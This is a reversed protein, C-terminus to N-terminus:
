PGCPPEGACVRHDCLGSACDTSEVCQELDGQLPRCTGSPAGILADDCFLGRNCALPGITLFPDSVCRDGIRGAQRCRGEDCVLEAGCFNDFGARPGCLEGPGPAPRCRGREFSALDCYRRDFCTFETDCEADAGRQARCVGPGLPTDGFCVLEGACERDARCSDGAARVPFCRGLATQNGLGDLCFMDPDCDDHDDCRQDIAGTGCRDGLTADQVCHDGVRCPRSVASCPEGPGPPPACRALECRPDSTEARCRSGPTACDTDFRCPALDAVTGVAGTCAALRDAVPLEFIACGQAAAAALCRAAAGGDWTATGAAISAAAVRRDQATTGLEEHPLDDCDLHTVDGARCDVLLACTLRSRCLYFDDFSLTPAACREDLGDVAGDSLQAGDGGCAALALVLAARRM